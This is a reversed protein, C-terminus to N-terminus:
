DEGSAWREGGDREHEHYAHSQERLFLRDMHATGCRCHPGGAVADWTRESGEQPGGEGHFHERLAAWDEENWGAADGYPSSFNQHRGSDQLEQAGEGTLPEEDWQAHAGGYVHRACKRKEKPDDFDFGRQRCRSRLENQFVRRDLGHFNGTVGFTRPATNRAQHFWMAPGFLVDGPEIVALWASAERLGPHADFDPRYFDPLAAGRANPCFGDASCRRHEKPGVVHRADGPDFLVMEKRGSIVSMWFNIGAADQHLFTGSGRGGM